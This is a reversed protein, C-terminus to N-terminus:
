QTINQVTYIKYFYAKINIKETHWKTFLDHQTIEHFWMKNIENCVLENSLPTKYINYQWHNSSTTSTYIWKWDRRITNGKSDPKGVGAISWETGCCLRENVLNSTDQRSFPRCFVCYELGESCSLSGFYFIHIQM